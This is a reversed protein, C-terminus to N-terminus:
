KQEVRTVIADAWLDELNYFKRSDENFVHVIIDGYDMLVWEMNSKGEIHIPHIKKKKRLVRDVNEIIAEIQPGSTGHCIVFSSFLINDLKSFDLVVIDNGKKELIADVIIEIEM